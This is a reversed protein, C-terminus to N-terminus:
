PSVIGVLKSSAFFFRFFSKLIKSFPDRTSFLFFNM